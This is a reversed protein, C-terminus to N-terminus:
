IIRMAFHCMKPLGTRFGEVVRQGRVNSRPIFGWKEKKYELGM